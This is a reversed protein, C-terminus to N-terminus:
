SHYYASRKVKAIVIIALFKRSVLKHDIISDLYLSDITLIGTQIETTAMVRVARSSAVFLQHTLM